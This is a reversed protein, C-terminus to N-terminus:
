GPPFGRPIRSRCSYSSSLLPNIKYLQNKSDELRAIISSLPIKIINDEENQEGVLRKKTVRENLLYYESNVRYHYNSTYLSENYYNLLKKAIKESQILAIYEKKKERQMRLIESDSYGKFDIYNSVTCRM